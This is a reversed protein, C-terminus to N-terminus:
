HKLLSLTGFVGSETAEIGSPEALAASRSERMGAAFAGTSTIIPTVAIMATTIFVVITVLKLKQTNSISTM